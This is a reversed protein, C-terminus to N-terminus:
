FKTRMVGELCADARRMGESDFLREDDIFQSMWDVTDLGWFLENRVRFTPVGWVGAQVAEATNRTLTEKILPSEIKTKASNPTEELLECLSNWETEPHRGDGWIFDFAIEVDKEKSGRATLLRLVPLPNFPHKPPVKFKVKLEQALYVCQRYTHKRKWPLEAPGKTGWAKLLGAFLTPVYKVDLKASMAHPNSGTFRKLHLYAYPSICDFYWHVPLRKMETPDALLSIKM